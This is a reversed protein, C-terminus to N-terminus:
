PLSMQPRFGNYDKITIAMLEKAEKLDKFIGSFGFESKLIGNIREAIPNDGSNDDQTVSIAIKHEKICDTYVIFVNDCLIGDSVLQGLLLM